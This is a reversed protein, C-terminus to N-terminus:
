LTLSVRGLWAQLGVEWWAGGPWGDLIEGEQDTGANNWTIAVNVEHKSSSTAGERYAGAHM